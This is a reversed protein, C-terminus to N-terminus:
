SCRRTTPSVRHASATPEAVGSMVVYAQQRVVALPVDARLDPDVVRRSVLDSGDLLQAVGLVHDHGTVGRANLCRGRCGSVRSELYSPRAPPRLLRCRHREVPAPPSPARSRFSTRTEGAVGLRDTSTTSVQVDTAPGLSALKTCTTACRESQPRRTSRSRVSPRCSRTRYITEEDVSQAGALAAGDAASILDRRELYLASVDTVVAILLAAVVVLGIILLLVTGEDQRPQRAAGPVDHGYRRTSTSWRPTRPRSRFARSRGDVRDGAYVPAAGDVSLDGARHRWADPVAYGFVLADAGFSELEIGHDGLTLAAAAHARQEGVVTSPARVFVRAAERHSCQGRIGREPPRLCGPRHLLAARRARRALLIFEVMAAGDDRGKM